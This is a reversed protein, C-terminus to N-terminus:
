TGWVRRCAKLFETLLDDLDKRNRETLFRNHAIKRRLRNLFALKQLYKKTVFVQQFADQWNASDSFVKELVSLDTFFIDPALEDPYHTIDSANAERQKYSLYTGGSLGKVRKDWWHDDEIGMLRSIVLKRLQNELVNLSIYALWSRRVGSGDWVLNFDRFIKDLNSELAMDRVRELEWLEQAEIIILMVTAHPSNTNVSPLIKATISFTDAQVRFEKANNISELNYEAAQIADLFDLFANQLDQHAPVSAIFEVRPQMAIEMAPSNLISEVLELMGPTQLIRESIATLRANESM